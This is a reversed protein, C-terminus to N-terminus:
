INKRLYPSEYTYIYTNYLSADHGKRMQRWVQRVQMKGLWLLKNTWIPYATEPSGSGHTKPDKMEYVINSNNLTRWTSRTDM